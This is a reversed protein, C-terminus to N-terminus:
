ICNGITVQKCAPKDPDQPKQTALIHMDGTIIINSILDEGNKPQKSAAVFMAAIGKPKTKNSAMKRSGLSDMETATAATAPITLMNCCANILGKAQQVPKDVQDDQKVHQDLKKEKKMLGKAQQVPKDAQDDQKTHQDLIKMRDVTVESHQDVVSQTCKVSCLSCHFFDLPYM